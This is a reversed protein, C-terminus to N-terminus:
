KHQVSQLGEASHIELRKLVIGCLHPRSCSAVLQCAILDTAQKSCSLMEFGGLVWEQKLCLTELESVPQM